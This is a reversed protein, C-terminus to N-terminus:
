QPGHSQGTREIVTIRIEHDGLQRDQEEFKNEAREHRKDMRSVARNFMWGMAALFADMLLDPWHESLASSVSLVMRINDNVM